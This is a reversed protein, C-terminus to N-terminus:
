RATLLADLLRVKAVERGKPSLVVVYDDVRPPRVALLQPVDDKGVEQTLLYINGDSGDDV